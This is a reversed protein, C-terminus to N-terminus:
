LELVDHNANIMVRKPRAPLMMQIGQSTSNGIVRVSGLRVIRGDFDAYLPVPMVFNPEVESQTLSAKLQCKGDAADTLTFDFKYRPVTTGYVWQRFFWDLRHNGEMDM